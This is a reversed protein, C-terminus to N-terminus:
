GKERLRQVTRHAGCWMRYYMGAAKAMAQEHRMAQRHASLAELRAENTQTDEIRELLALLQPRLRYRARQADPLDRVFAIGNEYGQVLEEALADPALQTRTCRGSYNFWRAREWNEADLWGPGGFHDYVFVPTRSALCYPVTKGITVVADAELLAKPDLRRWHDGGRGYHTVAIGQERLLTIAAGLEEPLHNSVVLLHKLEPRYDREARWFRPPAANDFLRVKEEPLGEATFYARAEESHLWIEDALLPEHVLGPQSLPFNLDVHLFVFRTRPRMAESPEYSLVPAIQNIVMVLDFDLANIEDSAVVTRAGTREAVGQMPQGLFNACIQVEHGAQLFFEAIEQIVLESGAIEQLHNTGLLIRM